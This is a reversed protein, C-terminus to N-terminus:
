VVGYLLKAVLKKALAAEQPSRYKEVARRTRRQGVATYEFLPSDVTFYRIVLSEM